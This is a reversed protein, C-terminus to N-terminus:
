IKAAMKAETQDLLNGEKMPENSNGNHKEAM